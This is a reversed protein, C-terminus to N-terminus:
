VGLHPEDDDDDDSPSPRSTTPRPAEVDGRVPWPKFPFPREETVFTLFLFVQYVYTSTGYGLDLLRQNVSGTILKIFFQAIVVAFLVIEALTYLLAYIVMFLLMNLGRMWTGTETLNDRLEDQEM